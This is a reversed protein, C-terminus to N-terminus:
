CLSELLPYFSYISPSNLRSLFIGYAVKLVIIFVKDQVDRFPDVFVSIVHNPQYQRYPNQYTKSAARALPKKPPLATHYFLSSGPKTIDTILLYSVFAQPSHLSNGTFDWFFRHQSRDQEDREYIGQLFPHGALPWWFPLLTEYLSCSVMNPNNPEWFKLPMFLICLSSNWKGLM